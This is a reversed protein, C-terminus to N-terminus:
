QRSPEITCPAAYQIKFSDCGKRAEANPPLAWQAYNELCPIYRWVCVRRIRGEQELSRM